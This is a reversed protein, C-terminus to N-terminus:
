LKQVPFAFRERVVRKDLIMVPEGESERVRMTKISFAMPM